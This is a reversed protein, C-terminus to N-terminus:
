HKKLIKWLDHLINFYEFFLLLFNRGTWMPNEIFLILTCKGKSNGFFDLNLKGLYIFNALITYFKKDEKPTIKSVGKRNLTNKLLSFLEDVVWHSIFKDLQELWLITGGM